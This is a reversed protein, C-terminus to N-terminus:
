SRVLRRAPVGAVTTHAAVNTAVLAGAGIVAGDGIQIGPLVTTGAGIFVENGITVSGTITVGPCVTVYDGLVCDHSVTAAVNIHTHRGLVVNSTVITGQALVVGDALSAGSGLQATPHLLAAAPLNLDRDIAARIHPYGVGLHLDIDRDGLASRTGLFRFGAQALLARDPEHDDVIGLLEIQSSSASTARVIDALERGHGGAGLVAVQRVPLATNRVDIEFIEPVDPIPRTLHPSHELNM